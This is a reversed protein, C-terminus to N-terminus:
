ECFAKEDLATLWAGAGYGLVANKGALLVPTGPVETAKALEAGKLIYAEHDKQLRIFLEELPQDGKLEPFRQVFQTLVLMRAILLDDTKPRKLDTYAYDVLEKVKDTGAADVLIWAAMDSGIFNKRPFFALKLTRYKDPYEELLKHALRCHWCFPDTLITIDLDGKGKVEVVAHDSVALFEPSCADKGEAHATVAFLLICLTTLMTIKRM